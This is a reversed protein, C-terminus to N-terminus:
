ETAEALKVKFEEVTGAFVFEFLTGGEEWDRIEIFTSGDEEELILEQRVGSPSTVDIPKM